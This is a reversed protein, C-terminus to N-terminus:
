FNFIFLNLQKFRQSASHLLPSGHYRNSSDGFFLFLNMYLITSLSVFISKTVIVVFFFQGLTLYQVIHRRHSRDDINTQKSKMTREQTRIYNNQIFFTCTITLFQLINEDFFIRNNHGSESHFTELPKTENRKTNAHSNCNSYTSLPALFINPSFIVRRLNDLYM